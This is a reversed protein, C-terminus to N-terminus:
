IWSCGVQNGIEYKRKEEYVWKRALIIRYKRGNLGGKPWDAVSQLTKRPESLTKRQDDIIGHIM